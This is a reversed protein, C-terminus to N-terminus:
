SLERATMKRSVLMTKFVTRRLEFRRGVLLADWTSATVTLVAGWPIAPVGTPLMAIYTADPDVQGGQETVPDTEGSRPRVACKGTYLTQPTTQPRQGTTEDIPADAAQSYTITCEDVMVLTELQGRAFTLDIAM